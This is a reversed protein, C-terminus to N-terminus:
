RHRQHEVACLGVRRLRGVRSGGEVVEGAREAPGAPRSSRRGQRGRATYRHDGGDLLLDGHVERDDNGMVAAVEGVTCARQSPLQGLTGVRSEEQDPVGRRRRAPVVEAARSRRAHPRMWPSSRPGRPTRTSTESSSGAAPITRPPRQRAPSTPRCTWRRGGACRAATPSPPPLRTAHRRSVPAGRRAMPERSGSASEPTSSTGTSPDRVRPTSVASRRPSTSRRRAPAGGDTVTAGLGDRM